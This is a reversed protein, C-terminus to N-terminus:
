REAPVLSLTVPEEREMAIWAVLDTGALRRRHGCRFRKGRPVPAGDIALAADAEGWDEIVFAPNAVPSEPSAALTVHLARGPATCALHYARDHFDYGKTRFGPGTVQLVPPHIWSRALPLLSEAERETMGYLAADFRTGGWSLSSHAMRDPAVAYRGDSAVQSAPWHNWWPFHSYEPRVEGNFAAFGSGPKLILFPRYRSKLNTVQIVPDELDFKPIGQAWSYTRRQGELNVLTIAELECNDEPRTGPASLFITEQWGGAGPLVHRVGVADPYITYIEDGWYGRGTKPDVGSFRWLVDVLGYRWELVVRADNAEIRRVRSFRCHADSMHECCGTPVEWRSRPANWNEGTERSQDAMWRGNETVWCPSYRTGRWFVVKVPSTDFEVVLDPADGTRWLADWEPYYKLRTYFAGFRGTGPLSPFARPRLPPASPPREERFTREIAEPDLKGRHIRLEDLVGDLSWRSPFTAWARVPHAPPTKVPNRGIFLDTGHAADLAGSLALHGAPRGDQYLTVGQGPDFVCAAHVWTRLPLGTRFGSAPTSRCEVRKGEVSGRFLLFGQADIGFAFGRGEKGERGVISCFNWPYAALAVWAQITFAGELDPAREARRVVVTTFGDFALARGAVGPVFTFNGELADRVHGASDLVAAGAGGAPGNFRWGAVLRPDESGAAPPVLIALWLLLGGLMDISAPGHKM